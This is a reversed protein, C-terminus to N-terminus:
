RPLASGHTRRAVLTGDDRRQGNEQRERLDPDPELDQTAVYEPEIPEPRCVIQEVPVAGVDSGEPLEHRDAEASPVPDAGSHPSASGAIDDTARRVGGVIKAVLDRLQESTYDLPGFGPM